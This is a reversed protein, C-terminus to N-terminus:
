SHIEIFLYLMCNSLTDSFNDISLILPNYILDSFVRSDIMLSALHQCEQQKSATKAGPGRPSPMTLWTAALFRRHEEHRTSTQLNIPIRATSPTLACNLTTVILRNLAELCLPMSTVNAPSGTSPTLACLPMPRNFRLDKIACMTAYISSPM